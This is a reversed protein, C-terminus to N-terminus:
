DSYIKMLFEHYDNWLVKTFNPKLWQVLILTCSMLMPFTYKKKPSNQTGQTSSIWMSKRDKLSCNFKCSEIPNGREMNKSTSRQSCWEMLFYKMKFPNKNRYSYSIVLWKVSYKNSCDWIIKLKLRLGWMSM